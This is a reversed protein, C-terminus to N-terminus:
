SARVLVATVDDHLPQDPALLGALIHECLAEPSEPGSAVVRALRELGADLSEGRREILGDTFLILTGGRGIREHRDEYVTDKIGMLGDGGELYKIGSGTRLIPAPHGATAWSVHADRPDIIAYIVTFLEESGLALQHRNLKTLVEGPTRIQDDALAFARTVSRLQGMASAAPIGRGAVDGVVVGVRGRSLTFADYWDGGVEAGIGAAQYHAALEIGAVAPLRKPLLGRQLTVAIQHEYAHLQARRIALGAREAADGLLSREPPSFSRGPQLAVRLAGAKAHEILLPAEHWAHTAPWPQDPAIRAAQGGTARVIMPEEMGGSLRVEAIEADFLEALGVALGPLLEDLSVSDTASALRQLKHLREAMAEAQSRAAQELVLEGRTQEARRRASLDVWQVLM